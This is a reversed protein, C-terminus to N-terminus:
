ATVKPVVPKTGSPAPLPASNKPTYGMIRVLQRTLLASLLVVCFLRLTQMALVLGTDAHTDMAIMAMSDLGGPSTALYVSLFDKHLLHAILWASLACLAILTLTSALIGPLRSWIYGITARDFRLGVYGGITGYAIALLWNPLNIHLIGIIQLTSGVLMPLLLAGAPIRSGAYLGLLIVGGIVAQNFIGQEESLNATPVVPVAASDSFLHSVLAGLVVVCVVRVYQMTAVTRADAGYEEALVVMASAAGPTMGWIATLNPMRTFRALLLSVVTSLGLTLATALLVIHWYHWLTSLVTLSMSHAMLVGVCGQSLQFPYKPIRVRMGNVGCYIAVLMPGLFHAAPIALWGLFQGALGAAGIFALWQLPIPWTDFAPHSLKSM